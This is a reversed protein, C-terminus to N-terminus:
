ELPIRQCSQYGPIRLNALGCVALSVYQRLYQEPSSNANETQGNTEPHYATSLSINIQLRHCITKWFQPLFLPGRDSVILDPLGYLKWVDRVFLLALDHAKMDTRCPTFPKDKSLRDVVMIANFGCATHQVPGIFDVSLDRWRQLSIPATETDGPVAVQLDQEEFM